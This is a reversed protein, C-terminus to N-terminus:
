MKTTEKNKKECKITGVDCQTTEVDCKVTRKDCIATGKKKERLNSPEIIINFLILM